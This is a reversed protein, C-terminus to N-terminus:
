EDLELALVLLSLARTQPEVWNSLEMIASELARQSEQHLAPFPTSRLQADRLSRPSKLMAALLPDAFCTSPLMVVRYSISGFEGGRRM